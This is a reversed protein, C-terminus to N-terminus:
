MTQSVSDSNSLGLLSIFLKSNRFPFHPISGSHVLSDFVEPRSAREEESWDARGEEKRGKQREKARQSGLSSSERGRFTVPFCVPDM